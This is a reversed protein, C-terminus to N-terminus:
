RRNLYPKQRLRLNKRHFIPLSQSQSSESEQAAYVYGASHGSLVFMAALFVCLM